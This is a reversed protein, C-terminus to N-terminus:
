EADDFWETWFGYERQTWAILINERSRQQMLEALANPTEPENVEDVFSRREM